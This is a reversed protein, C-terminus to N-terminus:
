WRGTPVRIKEGSSTPKRSPRNILDALLAPLRSRLDWPLAMAIDLMEDEILYFHSSTKGFGEAWSRGDAEAVRTSSKPDRYYGRCRTASLFARAANTLTFRFQRQIEDLIQGTSTVDMGRKSGQNDWM